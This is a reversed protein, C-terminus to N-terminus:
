GTASGKFFDKRGTKGEIREEQQKELSTKSGLTVNAQGGSAPPGGRNSTSSLKFLTKLLLKSALKVGM